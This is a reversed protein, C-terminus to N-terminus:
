HKSWDKNPGNVDKGSADVIIQFLFVYYKVQYIYIYIYHYLMWIHVLEASMRGFHRCIHDQNRFKEVTDYLIRWFRWGAITCVHCLASWFHNKYRETHWIHDHWLHISYWICYLFVTKAITIRLKVYLFWRKVFRRSTKNFRFNQCTRMSIWSRAENKMSLRTSRTMAKIVLGLALVAPKPPRPCGVHSWLIFRVM